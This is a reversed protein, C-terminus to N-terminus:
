RCAWGGAPGDGTHSSRHTDHAEGRGGCRAHRTHAQQQKDQKASRDLELETPATRANQPVAVADAAVAEAPRPTRRWQAWLNSVPPERGPQERRRRFPSMAGAAVSRATRPWRYCTMRATFGSGHGLLRDPLGLISTAGRPRGSDRRCARAPGASRPARASAASAQLGPRAPRSRAQCPRLSVQGDPHASSTRASTRLATAVPWTRGSTSTVPVPTSGSSTNYYAKNGSATIPTLSFDGANPTSSPWLWIGNGGTRRERRQREREGREAHQRLSWRSRQQPRPQRDGYQRARDVYIGDLNNRDHRQEHDDGQTADSCNTVIGYGNRVLHQGHGDRVTSGSARSALQRVRASGPGLVTTPGADSEIGTTSGQWDRREQHHRQQIAPEESARLSATRTRVRQDHHPRQPQRHRRQRRRRARRRPVAPSTRREPDRKRSM